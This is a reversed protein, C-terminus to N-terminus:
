IGTADLIEGDSNSKEFHGVTPSGSYKSYSNGNSDKELSIKRRPHEFEKFYHSVNKYTGGEDM